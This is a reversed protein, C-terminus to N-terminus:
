CPLNRISPHFLKQNIYWHTTRVTPELREELGGLRDNREKVAHKDLAELGSRLGGGANVNGLLVNLLQILGLDQSNARTEGVVVADLDLGVTSLAVGNQDGLKTAGGDLDALLLIIKESVRLDQSLDGLLATYLRFRQVSM